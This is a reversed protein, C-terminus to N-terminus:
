LEKRNKKKRSWEREGERWGKYTPRDRMEQLGQDKKEKV